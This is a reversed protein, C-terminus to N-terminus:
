TVITALYGSIGGSVEKNAASAATVLRVDSNKPAIIYPNLQIDFGVGFSASRNTIGRFVKGFQRIQPIVNAYAATKELVDGYYGTIIWYDASSLSTSAKESQNKGLAIMCHVKTGDVPAGGSLTTNEYVYINGTLSVSGTNYIRTARFLPTTLAVRTNGQLTANQVVFTLDSGSLTHGEITVTQADTTSSSISDISNGTAYTENFVGTPLTMITTDTTQAQSTRGFKILSKQKLDVSVVDGYTSYIENIAQQIKPDSDIYSYARVVQRHVGASVEETEPQVGDRVWARNQPNGSYVVSDTM